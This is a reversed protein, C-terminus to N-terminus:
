GPEKGYKCPWVLARFFEIVHLWSAETLFLTLRPETLDLLYGTRTRDTVILEGRRAPYKVGRIVYEEHKAQKLLTLRGSDRAHGLRRLAAFPRVRIRVDAPGLGPDPSYDARLHSGLFTLPRVLPGAAGEDVTLDISSDVYHLRIRRTKTM